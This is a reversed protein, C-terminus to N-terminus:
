NKGKILSSPHRELYDTLRRVSDMTREFSDLSNALDRTFGVIAAGMKGEGKLVKEVQPTLKSLAQLNKEMTDLSAVVGDSIREFDKGILNSTKTVSALAKNLEESNVDLNALTDRLSETTPGVKAALVEKEVTSIFKDIKKLSVSLDKTVTLLDNTAFKDLSAMTKEASAMAKEANEGIGQFDIRAVGDIIKEVDIVIDELSSRMAPIYVEDVEFPLEVKNDRSPDAYDLEIYKMGTIGAYNLNVRMGAEVAAIIDSQFKKNAEEESMTVMAKDSYSGTVAQMTVKVYEGEYLTIKKVRGITVGKLKVASGENLGQVSRDFYTVFDFSRKFQERLGLYFLAAVFLVVGSLVFIGLKFHKSEM